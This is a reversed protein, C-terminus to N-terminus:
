EDNLEEVTVKVARGFCDIEDLRHKRINVMVGQVSSFRMAKGVDDVWDKQQAFIEGKVKSIIRFYKGTKHSKIVWATSVSSSM